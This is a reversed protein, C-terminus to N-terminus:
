EMGLARQIPGDSVNEAKEVDGALSVREVTWGNKGLHDLMDQATERDIDMAEKGGMAYAFAEAIANVQETSM